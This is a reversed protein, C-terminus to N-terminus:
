MKRTAIVSPSPAVVFKSEAVIVIEDLSTATEELEFDLKQDKSLTIEQTISKFGIFSIVLTYTGEPATLSLFGYENTTAGYNPDKLYVTAGLLTEGNNLDKITGSISYQEQAQCLFGTFLFIVLCLHKMLSQETKQNIFNISSISYFDM